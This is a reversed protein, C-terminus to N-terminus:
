ESNEGWVGWSGVIRYPRRADVRSAPGGQRSVHAVVARPTSAASTPRGQPRRDMFPEREALGIYLGRLVGKKVEFSTGEEENVAEKRRERGHVPKPSSEEDAWSDM